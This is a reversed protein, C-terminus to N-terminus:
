VYHVPMHTGHGLVWNKMDKGMPKNTVTVAVYFKTMASM